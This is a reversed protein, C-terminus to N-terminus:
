VILQWTTQSRNKSEISSKTFNHFTFEPYQLLTTGLRALWGYKEKNGTPPALRLKRHSSGAKIEKIEPPLLGGCVFFFVVVDHRARFQQPFCTQGDITM